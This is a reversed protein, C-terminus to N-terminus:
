SDVTISSDDAITVSGEPYGYAANNRWLPLFGAGKWRTMFPGNLDDPPVYIAGLGFYTTYNLYSYNLFWGDDVGLQWGLLVLFECDVLGYYNAVPPNTQLDLVTITPPSYYRSDFWSQLYAQLAPCTIRLTTIAALVRARLEDDTEGPLPTVGYLVAHNRLWVGTATQVTIQEALRAIAAQCANMAKEVATFLTRLPQKNFHTPVSSFNYPGRPFRDTILEGDAM